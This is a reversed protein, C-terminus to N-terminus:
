EGCEKGLALFEIEFMGRLNLPAQIEARLCADLAVVDYFAFRLNESVEEYLHWPYRFFFKCHPPEIKAATLQV